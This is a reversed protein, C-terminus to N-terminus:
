DKLPSPVIPPKQVIDKTQQIELEEYVMSPVITSVTDGAGVVYNYLVREESADLINRFTTPGIAAFRLGRVPTETGEPTVRAIELIVPGAAGPGSFNAIRRVIYGFPKDQVALLELYKKKLDSLPVAQASRLQFVGAEPGGSRGHGNSQLLKKQPTRGTLSRFLM